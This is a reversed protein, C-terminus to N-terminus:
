TASATVVATISADLTAAIRTASVDLVEVNAAIAIASWLKIHNTHANLPKRLGVGKTTRVMLRLNPTEQPNGTISLAQM